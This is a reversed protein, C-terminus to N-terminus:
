FRASGYPWCANRLLLRSQRCDRRGTAPLGYFFTMVAVSQATAAACVGYRARDGLEDDARSTSLRRCRCSTACLGSTSVDPQAAAISFNAGCAPFDPSVAWRARVHHVGAKTPVSTSSSAYLPGGKASQLYWTGACSAMLGGDAPFTQWRPARCYGIDGKECAQCVRTEADIRHTRSIDRVPLGSQPRSDHMQIPHASRYVIRVVILAAGILGLAVFSIVKVLNNASAWSAGFAVGLTLMIATDLAEGALACAFFTPFPFRRVGSLLNVVGSLAGVLWRSLFIAWGGYRAFYARGSDLTRPSIFRQGVRSRELWGAAKEGATRGVLYGVVDGCGAASIAVLAVMVVNLEGHGALAGAALLLPDVPLPVGAGGLFVIIWLAIYGHVRIDSLLTPLM